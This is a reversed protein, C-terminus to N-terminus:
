LKLLGVFASVSGLDPLELMRRVVGDDDSEGADGPDSERSGPETCGNKPCGPRDGRRPREFPNADPIIPM